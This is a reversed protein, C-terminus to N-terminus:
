LYSILSASKFLPKIDSYTITVIICLPLNLCYSMFSYNFILTLFWSDRVAMTTM